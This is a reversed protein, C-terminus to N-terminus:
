VFILLHAKNLTVIEPAVLLTAGSRLNSAADLCVADLEDTQRERIQM